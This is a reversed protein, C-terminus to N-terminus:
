RKEFLDRQVPWEGLEQWPASGRKALVRVRVDVFQSNQLLQDWPDTGTYGLPSRLIVPITSGYPALSESGIEPIYANGWTNTEGVRQFVANLRVRAIPESTVNKLRIVISPVLKHKGHRVTASFWGTRVDAIQLEEKITRSPGSVVVGATLSGVLAFAGLVSALTCRALHRLGPHMDRVREQCASCCLDKAMLMWFPAAASSRRAARFAEVMADGYEVRFRRPYLHLLAAYLRESTM